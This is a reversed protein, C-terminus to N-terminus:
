ILRTRLENWIRPDELTLVWFALGRFRYKALVDFKNAASRFDEYYVIHRAGDEALYRVFPQGTLDDM